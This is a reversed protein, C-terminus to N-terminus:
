KHTHTAGYLKLVSIYDRLWCFLWSVSTNWWGLPVWQAVRWLSMGEHSLSYLVAQLAPSRPEIDPHPLDGPAPFPLGSWREERSFDHGSSRPSSCNVPDCFAPSLQLVLVGTGIMPLWKSEEGGYNQWKLFQSIVYLLHGKKFVSM